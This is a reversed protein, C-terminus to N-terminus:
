VFKISQNRKGQAFIPNVQGERNIKQQKSNNIVERNSKLSSRDVINSQSTTLHQVTHHKKM